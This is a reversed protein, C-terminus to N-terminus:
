FNKFHKTVASIFYPHPILSLLIKHQRINQYTLLQQKPRNTKLSSLNNYVKTCESILFSGM